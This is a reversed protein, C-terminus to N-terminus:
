EDNDGVSNFKGFFDPWVSLTLNVLDKKARYAGIVDLNNIAESLLYKDGESLGKRGQQSFWSVAGIRLWISVMLSFVGSLLSIIGLPVTLNDWHSDPTLDPNLVAILGVVICFISLIMAWAMCTVSNIKNM